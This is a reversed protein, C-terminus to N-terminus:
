TSTARPDSGCRRLWVARAASRIAAGGAPSPDSAVRGSAAGNSLHRLMQSSQLRTSGVDTARRKLTAGVPLPSAEAEGEVELVRQGSRSSCRAGPAQDAFVAKVHVRPVEVIHDSTRVGRGRSGESSGDSSGDNVSGGPRHCREDSPKPRFHPVRPSNFLCRDQSGTGRIRPGRASACRPSARIGPLM